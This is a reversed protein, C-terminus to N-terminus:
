EKGLIDDLVFCGRVHPGPGRLHGLIEADTCGAEELADALVALRAPHLHGSPLIREHCAAQALSVVTPTFWASDLRVPRFPNGFLDRLFSCQTCEDLVTEDIGQCYTRLVAAYAAANAAAYGRDNFACATARAAALAAKFATELNERTVQGDAFREAVEIATRSREDPLLHRIRRLCACTFLRLKRDTAKGATRLFELLADPDTCALWEWERM